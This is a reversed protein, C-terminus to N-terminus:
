IKQDRRDKAEKQIQIKTENSINGVDFLPIEFPEILPPIKSWPINSDKPKSCLLFDNKGMKIKTSYNWKKRLM